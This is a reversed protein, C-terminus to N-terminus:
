FFSNTRLIDCACFTIKIRLNSFSIEPHTPRPRFSQIWIWLRYKINTNNLLHQILAHLVILPRFVCVICKFPLKPALRQRDTGVDKSLSHLFLWTDLSYTQITESQLCTWCRGEEISGAKSDKKKLKKKSVKQFPAFEVVAPYEQGSCINVYLCIIM